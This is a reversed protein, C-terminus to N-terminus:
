KLWNEVQLGAIRRFHEENNTAPAHQVRVIPIRSLAFRKEISGCGGYTATSKTMMGSASSRSKSCSEQLVTCSATSASIDVRRFLLGRSLPQTTRTQHGCYILFANDRSPSVAQPGLIRLFKLCDNTIDLKLM